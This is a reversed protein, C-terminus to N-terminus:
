SSKLTIMKLSQWGHTAHTASRTPTANMWIGEMSLMAQGKQEWKAYKFTQPNGGMRQMHPPGQPTANWCFARDRKALGPRKQKEEEALCAQTPNFVFFGPQM